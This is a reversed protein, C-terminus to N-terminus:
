VMSSATSQVKRRNEAAAAALSARQLRIAMAPISLPASANVTAVVSPMRQGISANSLMRPAPAAVSPMRQGISANSLMRPAPAPSGSSQLDAMSRYASRPLSPPPNLPAPAVEPSRYNYPFKKFVSKQKALEGKFVMALGYADEQTKQCDQHHPNRECFEKLTQLYTNFKTELQNFRAPDTLNQNREDRLRKVSQRLKNLMQRTNPSAETFREPFTQAAYLKALETYIQQKQPRTYTEMATDLAGSPYRQMQQAVDAANFPSAAQAPAPAPQGAYQAVKQQLAQRNAGKLEDIQRGERFFLFAPISTVRYQAALDDRRDIDVKLFKVNHSSAGYTQALDNVFSAMNRCPGCWDAEFKVVVMGGQIAASFDQGTGIDQINGGYVRFKGHSARRKKTYHRKTNKKHNRQSKM